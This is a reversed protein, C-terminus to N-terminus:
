LRGFLRLRFGKELRLLLPLGAVLHIFLPRRGESAAGDHGRGSSVPVPRTDGHRKEGKAEEQEIVDPRQIGHGASFIDLGKLRLYQGLLSLHRELRMDHAFAGIGPNTLHWRGQTAEHLM